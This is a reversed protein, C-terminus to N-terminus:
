VYAYLQAHKNHMCRAGSSEYSSKMAMTAHLEPKTNHQYGIATHQLLTDVKTRGDGSCLAVKMKRCLEAKAVQTTSNQM